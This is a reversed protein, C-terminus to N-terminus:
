RAAVDRLSRPARVMPAAASRTALQAPASGVSPPEVCADLSVVAGAVAAVVAVVATGRSAVGAGDVVWGTSTAVVSADAGVEVAAGDVVDDVVDDVADDVGTGVM